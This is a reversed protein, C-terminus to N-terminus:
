WNQIPIRVMTTRTVKIKVLRLFDLPSVGDDRCYRRLYDVMNSASDSKCDLSSVVFRSLYCLPLSIEAWKPIDSLTKYRKPHDLTIRKIKYFLSHYNSDYMIRVNKPKESFLWALIDDRSPPGFAIGVCYKELYELTSPLSIGYDECWLYLLNHMVIIEHVRTPPSKFTPRDIRYGKFCDWGCSERISGTSFTKEVNERFGLRRLMYSYLSYYEQPIIIDDGYFAMNKINQKWSGGSVVLVGYFISCFILTELAFTFGNGMASLKEFLYEEGNTSCIGKDVRLASLFVAWHHPFLELWVRAISDSAGSLDITVLRGDLSSQLALKQNKSQTDLDVGWKKLASRFIGDVGLQLYVNATPEICITRRKEADKPVFTIVSHEAQSVLWDKYPVFSQDDYHLDRTADLWLQTSSRSWRDDSDHVSRFIELASPSCDIPAAFKCLLYADKGRRGVSAGPGHRLSRSFTELDPKVGIVKQIFLRANRMVDTTVVNDFTSLMPDDDIENKFSRFIPDLNTKRCLDEFKKFIELARQETNFPSNPFDYKQFCTLLRLLRIDRVSVSGLKAPGEWEEASALPYLCNLAATSKCFAFYEQIQRRRIILKLNSLENKFAFAPCECEIDSVIRSLVQWPFDKKIRVVGKPSSHRKHKLKRPEVKSM